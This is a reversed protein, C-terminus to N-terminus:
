YRLFFPLTVKHCGLNMYFNDTDSWKLNALLFVKISFLEYDVVFISFQIYKYVKSRLNEQELYLVFYPVHIENLSPPLSFIAKLRVM